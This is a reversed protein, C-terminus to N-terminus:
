NNNNENKVSVIAQKINDVFVEIEETSEAASSSFHGGGNVAEAIIQVNTNYGRASLKYINTKELKGVVFSAKRGEIKLIEESAIAIIDNSVEIDAYSLFYGPKVEQLNEILKKVKIDIEESIKLCATSKEVSAGWQELLSCAYFTKSSTHKKLNNTDLYIGDLLLQTATLTLRDKNNTLAIIETIIESASSATSDIYINNIYAYTPMTLIRHHDIVIINNKLAGKFAKKNEIREEDCVDTLIVLTNENTITQAFKPTVFVDPTNAFLKDVQRKGTDDFINNQIYAEKGFSKALTYIAYASGIADLDANKHGYIVVNKIQDSSIKDILIQAILKVNTRSINISIESHSGYHKPKSDKTLVTIQNGGRTQSQLLAEKALAGLVNYELIGYAFGASISVSKQEDYVFNEETFFGFEEQEFLQLTQFNTIIFFKGNEYQRYVFDYKKSLNELINIVLSYIKFVEDASYNSQFLNINDINIEGFVVRQDKYDNIINSRITIDKFILMNKEYLVHIEYKFNDYEYEFDNTEKLFDIKFVDKINKGIIKRTFRNQIFDSIWIIRGNDLFLISGMGYKSIENEIYFNVGKTIKYNYKNLNKIYFLSSIGIGILWLAYFVGVVIKWKESQIWFFTTFFFITPVVFLFILLLILKLKTKKNM